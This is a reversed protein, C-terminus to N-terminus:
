NKKSFKNNKEVRQEASKKDSANEKALEKMGIRTLVLKKKSDVKDVYAIFDHIYGPELYQTEIWDTSEEALDYNNHEDGLVDVYYYQEAMDEFICKGLASTWVEYSSNTEEEWDLVSPFLLVSAGEVPYEDYYELVTIRVTSNIGEYVEITKSYTNVAGELGYAHLSVTYTGPTDYTIIPSIITSSTNDGFEWLVSAADLSENNFTIEEGVFVLDTEIAAYGDGDPLDTTVYFDAYPEIATITITAYAVDFGSSNNFAKLTVTYTGAEEFINVPNYSSSGTGDDFEWQFADAYYSLNDFYVKEGLEPNAPSFSFDAVPETYCGTMILALATSIIILRKM